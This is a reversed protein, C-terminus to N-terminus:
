ARIHLAMQLSATMGGRVFLTRLRERWATM